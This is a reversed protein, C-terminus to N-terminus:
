LQNSNTEKLAKILNLQMAFLIEALFLFIHDVREGLKLNFYEYCLVIFSLREM